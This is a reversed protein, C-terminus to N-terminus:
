DQPKRWDVDQLNHSEAREDLMKKEVDSTDQRGAKIEPSIPDPRGGEPPSRARSAEM